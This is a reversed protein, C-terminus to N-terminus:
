AAQDGSMGPLAVVDDERLVARTIADVAAGAV